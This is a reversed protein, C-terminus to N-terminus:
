AAPTPGAATSTVRIVPADTGLVHISFLILGTDDEVWMTFAAKDWFTAASDCMIDAAYRVAQCKADGLSPLDMGLDDPGDEVHFFYRPM